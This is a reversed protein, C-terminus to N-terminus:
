YYQLASFYRCKFLEYKKRVKKKFETFEIEDDATKDHITLFYAVNQSSIKNVLKRCWWVIWCIFLVSTCSATEKLVIISCVCFLVFFFFPFKFAVLLLLFSHFSIFFITSFKSCIPNQLISILDLTKKRREHM